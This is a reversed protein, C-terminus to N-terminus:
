RNPQFDFNNNTYHDHCSITLRGHLIKLRMPSWSLAIESGPIGHMKKYKKEYQYASVGPPLPQRDFIALPQNFAPTAMPSPVPMRQPQPIGPQSHPNSNMDAGAM